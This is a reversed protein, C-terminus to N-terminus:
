MNAMTDDLWLQYFDNGVDYHAAIQQVQKRKINQNFHHGNKASLVKYVAAHNINVFRMLEDMHDVELRGDMYAEGFAWDSTKVIDSVLGEDHLSVTFRAEGVGYQKRKSGCDDVTMPGFKFRTLLQDLITKAIIGVSL